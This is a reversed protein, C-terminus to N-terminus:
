YALPVPKVLAEDIGLFTSAKEPLTSFTEMPGYWVATTVLINAKLIKSTKLRKILTFVKYSNRLLLILFVSLWIFSFIVGKTLTKRDQLSNLGNKKQDANKLIGTNEHVANGTSGTLNSKDMMNSSAMAYNTIVDPVLSFPSEMAVPCILRIFVIFWLLYSFIKPAKRLLFRIVLVAFICYCSVLSMQLIHFFLKEM